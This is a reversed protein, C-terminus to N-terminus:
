LTVAIHISSFLASLLQPNNELSSLQYPLFHVLILSLERNIEDSSQKIPMVLRFTKVKISAQYKNYLAFLCRHVAFNERDVIM